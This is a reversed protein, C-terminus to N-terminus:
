APWLALSRRIIEDLEAKTGGSGYTFTGTLHQWDERSLGYLDRAIFVELAARRPVDHPNKLLKAASEALKEKHAASLKPVPLEYMYFMNLTASIKSRIYYNLVLSNLLALFSRAEDVDLHVQELRGKDSLDFELPSLYPLKNNLCVDAPVETAIITRENTSSGIERYAVRPCEYPLKFRKTTFIQRLRGELEERGEPVAKTELKKPGVERVLRVLRHIEKRLLEERVAGEEVAYNGAAYQADFQHIMKGEFLPMEGAAPKRGGLKRFFRSDNTMHLESALRWGHEKLLPHEGRIKACLRYDAESRFEMIGYNEPSFHRIMEVSYGIPPAVVDKPDRLYFRADFTHGSTPQVGKTARFFGFKYRSDVDPFIHKTVERGEEIVTYGRNEFSTLEEFLNEKLLLRRLPGCGEDTQLGSPVLLSIRGGDRVLALNVEIFLKYLNYDGGGQHRYRLRFFASHLEYAATYEQWKSRFEADEGLTKEFWPTFDPGAISYKGFGEKLKAVFEKRLPKFGEWPPNGIIGHFGRDAPPRPRGEPEFWCPWFHLVFGAPEGPLPEGQFRELLNRRLRLRLALAEELPAHDMPNELYRARLASLKKLEAQHYEALWAAQDEPAADVLSDATTFNLELNPLIHVIDGKLDRYNYDTASLKVAEKWINTKAVEIAGADKDVGHVHRLLIRAILIRRDDLAHRRRFALAAEVNPPLEALCLEGNDPRLIKTVWACAEDVRRYQRWFARLVKILFGGSGCATDAVRIEALRAMLDDARTFDCKRSGVADCLEAVLGGALSDVMSDAMPGTIGAPTYYIGEDKRNAALFMEYSRGFIDEDIRRYNYNVVGRGMATNWPDLGLIFELKRCFRGYNAEDAVLKDAIRASFIETDYYEDFFDEFNALFHRTVKAAGKAEWRDKQRAYEDQIYRYPVLGFDELTKAFILKNLLLIIFEAAREPPQWHVKEFEGFWNKLDDFFQRELDPKEATDELRRIADTVSRAELCRELLGAFPLATFPKEEFFYDRTSCPWATRLDTLVIYEHEALYKKIQASHHSPNADVRRLRDDGDRHFLAKLEFPIIRGSPDRVLFDVWGDRVIVQRAPDLKLVDRCLATFLEEAAAEPKSGALLDRLYKAAPAYAPLAAADTALPLLEIVPQEVLLRLQALIEAPPM